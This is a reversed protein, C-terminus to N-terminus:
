CLYPIKNYKGNLKHEYSNIKEAFKRDYPKIEANRLISCVDIYIGLHGITIGSLQNDLM